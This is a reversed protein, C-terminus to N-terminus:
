KCCRNPQYQSLRKLTLPELACANAQPNLGAHNKGLLPKPPPLLLRLIGLRVLVKSDVWFNAMTGVSLGNLSSSSTASIKLNWFSPNNTEKLEWFSKTWSAHWGVWISGHAVLKARSWLDLHQFRASRVLRRTLPPTPDIAWSPEYDRPHKSVHAHMDCSLTKAQVPAAKQASETCSQQNIILLGAAVSHWGCNGSGWM